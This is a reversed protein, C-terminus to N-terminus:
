VRIGGLFGFRGEDASEPAEITEEVHELEEQSGEDREGAGFENRWERLSVLFSLFMTAWDDDKLGDVLQVRMFLELVDDRSVGLSADPIDNFLHNAKLIALLKEKPLASANKVVEGYVYLWSADEDEEFNVIMDGVHIAALRHENLAFGELNLKESIVAILKDAKM